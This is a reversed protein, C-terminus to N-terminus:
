KYEGRVAMNVMVRAMKIADDRKLYWNSQDQPKKPSNVYVVGQYWPPDDFKSQTTRVACVYGRDEFLELEDTDQRMAEGKMHNQGNM